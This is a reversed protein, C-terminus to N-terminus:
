KFTLLMRIKSILNKSNVQPFFDGRIYNSKDGDLQMICTRIGNYNFMKIWVNFIDGYINYGKRDYFAVISLKTTIYSQVQINEYECKSCFQQWWLDQIFIIEPNCYLCLNNNTIYPTKM